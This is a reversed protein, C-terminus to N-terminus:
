ATRAQYKDRCAASCFYLRRDGAGITIARDRVVFTGCVPDRAMPVGPTAPTASTAARGAHPPAGRMGELVGDVIRWFARAVIAFLILLLLYRLM